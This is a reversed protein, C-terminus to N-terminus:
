PAYSSFRTGWGQRTKHSLTPDKFKTPLTMPLIELDFDGFDFDGGQGELFRLSLSPAGM